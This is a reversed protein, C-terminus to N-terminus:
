KVIFFWTEYVIAAIFIFSVFDLVYKKISSLPLARRGVAIILLYQLSIFIGGSIGVLTFFDHVGALITILPIFTILIRTALSPWALDKEFSNKLERSIPLYSTAIATIGLAALLYRKWLAWHSLGSVTDTTIQQASGFIGSTFLMYLAVVALTGFIIGTFDRKANEHKREEYAPEIGTWGALSLLIVGFPLFINKPFVATSTFLTARPFSNGFVFFVILTTLSIGLIELGAIRKDALFVPVSVALWFILLADIPPLSPFALTLFRSGLILYSILAFILGIAIAVIGIWFGTIGLYDRSLGLLRKKEDVHELTKLYIIHAIIVVAALAFLYIIGTLWGAQSFTYPLAFIGEGITAAAVIAVIALSSRFSRM